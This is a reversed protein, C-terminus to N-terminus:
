HTLVEIMRHYCGYEDKVWEPNFTENGFFRFGYVTKRARAAFKTEILVPPVDYKGVFKKAAERAAELTKYMKKGKTARKTAKQNRGM